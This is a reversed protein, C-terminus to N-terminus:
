DHDLRGQFPHAETKEFNSAAAFFYGAFLKM